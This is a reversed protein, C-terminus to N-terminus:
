STRPLSTEKTLNWSAPLYFTIRVFTTVSLRALRVQLILLRRCIWVRGPSAVVLLDIDPKGFINDMSLAGTVAVMHVFPTRAVWRARVRARGWLRSSAQEREHRVKLLDERGQLM